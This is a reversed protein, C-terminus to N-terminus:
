ELKGKLDFRTIGPGTKPDLSVGYVFEDTPSVTLRRIPRDLILEFSKQGDWSFVRILSGYQYGPNDFKLGSFLAYVYKGSAAIDLYGSVSEGNHVAVLQDGMPMLDVGTPYFETYSWISDLSNEKVDLINLIGANYSAMAIKTSSPNAVFASAYLNANSIDDLKPNVIKKDPYTLYYKLPVGNKDFLLLRGEPSRSEAVILDGTILLKDFLYENKKEEKLAYYIEGKPFTGALVSDIDFKLMKKTFLDNIYFTKTKYIAQIDGTALIEFPGKGISLFKKVLRGSVSYIEILPEAKYNSIILLSDMQEIIVPDALGSVIESGVVNVKKKFLNPDVTTTKEPSCSTVILVFCLFIYFRIM